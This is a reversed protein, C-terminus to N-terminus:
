GVQVRAAARGRLRCPKATRRPIAPRTGHRLAWGGAARASLCSTVAVHGGAPPALPLTKAAVSPYDSDCSSRSPKIQSPHSPPHPLSSSPVSALLFLLPPFNKQSITKKLVIDIIFVVATPFPLSFGKRRLILCLMSSLFLFNTIM